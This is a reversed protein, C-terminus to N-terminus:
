DIELRRMLVFGDLTKSDCRSNQVPRARVQDATAGKVKRQTRGPDVVSAVQELNVLESVDVKSFKM